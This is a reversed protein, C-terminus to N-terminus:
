KSLRCLPDGIVVNTWSLAPIGIYFSEALNRGGLYAPFLLDPRPTMSLYPEYVHGSAGTVGERIYDATLSQPSGAFHSDRKKWTGLQWNDPPRSFTRANTSVFETIVAGPLWQFGLVRKKRNPDNSGWSASGIVNRAGEIVRTSEDFLVRDKPLRVGANRLWDNGPEDSASKLDLVVMGRNRAELSRDILGKIDNFDYGAL